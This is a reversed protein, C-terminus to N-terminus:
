KQSCIPEYILVQNNTRVAFYSSSASWKIEEIPTTVLFMSTKNNEISSLWTNNDSDISIQWKGNPSIYENNITLSTDDKKRKEGQKVLKQFNIDFSYTGSCDIGCSSTVYLTQPDTWQSIGKPSSWDDTRASNQEDFVNFSSRDKTGIIKVSYINENQDLIIFALYKGDPSWTLDGFVTKDNSVIITEDVALDYVQLSGIFWGWVHNDPEVFALEDNTPSWAILSGQSSQTNITVFEKLLCAQSNIVSMNSKLLQTPLPKSLQDTALVEDDTLVRGGPISCACFLVLFILHISLNFFFRFLKM